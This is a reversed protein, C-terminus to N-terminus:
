SAMPSLWGPSAQGGGGDAVLQGVSRPLDLRATAELVYANPAVDPLPRVRGLLVDGQEVRERAVQRHIGLLTRKQVVLDPPPDAGTCVTAHPAM